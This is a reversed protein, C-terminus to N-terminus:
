DSLAQAQCQFDRMREVTLRAPPDPEITYEWGLEAALFGRYEVERLAVVFGTFDFVGEGPVLHQDQVGNNDDIHVHFLRDGLAKAAEAAM